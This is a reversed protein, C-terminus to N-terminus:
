LNVTKFTGPVPAGDKIENGIRCEVRGSKLALELEAMANWAKHALHALDSESDYDGETKTKLRHRGDANAFRREGQPVNQWGLSYHNPAKAYKRDGYESVYSVAVIARAFYDLFGEVIPPKGMDLKRAEQTDGAQAAGFGAPSLRDAGVMRQANATAPCGAAHILAGGIDGKCRCEMARRKEDDTMM